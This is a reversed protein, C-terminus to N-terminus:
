RRAPSITLRAASQRKTPMTVGEPLDLARYKTAGSNDSADSCFANDGTTGDSWGVIAGVLKSGSVTVDAFSDKVTGYNNGAIGGVYKDGSIIGDVFCNEITGGSNVGAIGGVYKDGSINVNILTLNKITGENKTFLGSGQPHGGTKLNSITHGNGDFTGKFYKWTLTGIPTWNDIGSLDLDTTLRLIKNNYLKGKNVQDRFNIFDDLSNIEIVNEPNDTITPVDGIVLSEDNNFDNPFTCTLSSSVTGLLTNGVKLAKDKNAAVFDDDFTFTIASGTSYYLRGDLIVAEGGAVKINLDGISVYKTLRTGGTSFFGRPPSYRLVYLNNLFNGGSTAAFGGLNETHIGTM